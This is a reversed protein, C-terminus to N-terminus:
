AASIAHLRWGQIYREYEKKSQPPRESSPVNTGPKSEIDVCGSEDEISLQKESSQSNAM